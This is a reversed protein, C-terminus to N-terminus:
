EKKRFLIRNPSQIKHWDSSFAKCIASMQFLLCLIGVPFFLLKILTVMCYLFSSSRYKTFLFFFTFYLAGTIRMDKTLPSSVAGVKKWALFYLYIPQILKVITSKSNFIQYFLYNIHRNYVLETSSDVYKM